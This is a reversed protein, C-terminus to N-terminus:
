DDFGLYTRAIKTFTEIESEATKGLVADDMGNLVSIGFDELSTNMPPIHKQLADGTCLCADSQTLRLDLMHRILRDKWEKMDAAHHTKRTQLETLLTTASRLLKFIADRRADDRRQRDLKDLEFRRNTAATERSNRNSFWVGALAALGGFLAGVGGQVALEALRWWLNVPPADLKVNV